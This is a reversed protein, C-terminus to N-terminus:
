SLSNASSAGGVMQSINIIDNRAQIIQRILRIILDCANSVGDYNFVNYMTNLM